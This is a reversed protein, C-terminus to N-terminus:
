IKTIFNGKFFKKEAVKLNRLFFNIVKNESYYLRLELNHPIFEQVIVHDQYSATGTLAKQPGSPDANNGNSETSPTKELEVQYALDLLSHSLNYSQNGFRFLRVDFAEWSFGMKAVGRLLPKLNNKLCGQKNNCTKVTLQKNNSTKVTLTATCDPYWQSPSLNDNDSFNRIETACRENRIRNLEAEATAAAKLVRSGPRVDVRPVSVTAPVRFFPDGAMMHTWTKDTLLRYFHSNAPFLTPIGSRELSQLLNFLGRFELYGASWDFRINQEFVAAWSTLDWSTPHMFLLSGARRARRFNFSLSTSM